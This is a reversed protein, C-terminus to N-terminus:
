TELWSIKIPEKQRVTFKDVWLVISTPQTSYDIPWVRSVEFSIKPVFSPSTFPVMSKGQGDVSIKVIYNRGLVFVLSDWVQLVNRTSLLQNM